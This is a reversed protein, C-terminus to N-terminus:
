VRFGPGQVRFGSGYVRFGLGSDRVGVGWCGLGDLREGAVRERFCELAARRLWGEM